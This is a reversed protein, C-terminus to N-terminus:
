IWLVRSYVRFAQLVDSILGKLIKKLPVKLLTM